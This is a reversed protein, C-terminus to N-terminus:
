IIRNLNKGEDFAFSKNHNSIITYKAVIQLM